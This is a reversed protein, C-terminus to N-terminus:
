NYNYQKTYNRFNGDKIITGREDNNFYLWATYTKGNIEVPIQKRKYWSPHGELSDIYPLRKIDIEWLEGQIQSTKKYENIFPIGSAYMTYEEVTNGKGILKQDKMYSNNGYGTMLTGYAFILVSKNKM